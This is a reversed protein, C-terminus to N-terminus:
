GLGHRHIDNILRLSDAFPIYPEYKGLVAMFPLDVDEFRYRGDTISAQLEHLQRELTRAFGADPDSDAGDDAAVLDGADFSTQDVLYLYAEMSTPKNM